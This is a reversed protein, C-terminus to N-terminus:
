CTVRRKNIKYNQFKGYLIRTSCYSNSKYSNLCDGTYHKIHLTCLNFIIVFTVQSQKAFLVSDHHCHNLHKNLLLLYNKLVFYVFM